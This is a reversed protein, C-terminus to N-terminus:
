RAGKLTAPSVPRLSRATCIWRLAVDTITGPHGPVALGLLKKRTREAM